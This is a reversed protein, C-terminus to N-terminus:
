TLVYCFYEWGFYALVSLPKSRSKFTWLVLVECYSSRVALAKLSSLWISHFKSVLYILLNPVLKNYVLKRAFKM